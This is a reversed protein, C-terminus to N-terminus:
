RLWLVAAIILAALVLAILVYKNAAFWSETQITSAFLAPGEATQDPISETAPSALTSTTEKQLQPPQASASIRSAAVPSSLAEKEKPLKETSDDRLTEPPLSQDSVNPTRTQPSTQNAPRALSQGRWKKEECEVCLTRGASVPFGCAQCKQLNRLVAPVPIADAGSDPSPSPAEAQMAVSWYLPKRGPEPVARRHTSFPTQSPLNAASLEQLPTTPVTDSRVAAISDPEAIGDGASIDIGSADFPLTEILTGISNDPQDPNEDSVEGVVAVQQSAVAHQVATEVLVALRHMASFDREEFAHPRGSFLEFVGIAQEECVIPMIVVSAIGLQRCAESNVRPDRGADDCRQTQRMRVSEGSLGYEMSLLAGLEPANSGVSARCLMDNYQGRRLAIAAGTAGTIYQAREALLQLAADLDREAMQAITFGPSETLAPQASSPGRAIAAAIGASVSSNLSGRGQDITSPRDM